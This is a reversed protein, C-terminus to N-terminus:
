GNANSKQEQQKRNAVGNLLFSDVFMRLVDFSTASLDNPQTSRMDKILESPVHMSTFFLFLLWGFWTTPRPTRTRSHGGRRAM